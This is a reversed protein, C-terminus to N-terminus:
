LGKNSGWLLDYLVDKIKKNLLKEEEIFKKNARRIREKEYQDMARHSDKKRTALYVILWTVILTFFAEMCKRKTEAVFKFIFIPILM